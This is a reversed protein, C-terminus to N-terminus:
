TVRFMPCMPCVWKGNKFFPKEVAHKKLKSSLDAVEREASQRLADLAPENEAAAM